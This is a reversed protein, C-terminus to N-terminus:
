LPKVFIIYQFGEDDYEVKYQEFGCNAIFAIWNDAIIPIACFLVREQRDQILQVIKRGYGQGRYTKEVLLTGLWPKQNSPANRVHYSIAVEQEGMKWLLWEGDLGKVTKIYNELSLDKLEIQQWIVSQDIIKQLFPYDQKTLSSPTLRHNM